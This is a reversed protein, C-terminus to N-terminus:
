GPEGPGTECIPWRRKRKKGQGAYSWWIMRRACWRGAGSSWRMTWRILICTQLARAEAIDHCLPKECFVHKGLNIARMSAPAHHHDPTAVLVVDIEKHMVDFMRRYDFFTRPEAGQGAAKKAAAALRTDDVDVIAVLREGLAADLSVEVRGGCGIVAVALKSNSSSSALLFPAELM